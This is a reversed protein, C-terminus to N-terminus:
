VYWNQWHRTKIQKVPLLVLVSAGLCFAFNELSCTRPDVFLSSAPFEVPLIWWQFNQRCHQWVGGYTSGFVFHLSTRDAKVLRSDCTSVHQRHFDVSQSLVDCDPKIFFGYFRFETETFLEYLSLPCQFVCGVYCLLLGFTLDFCLTWPVDHQWSQADVM